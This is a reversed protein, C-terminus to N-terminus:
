LGAYKKLREQTNVTYARYSRYKKAAEDWSGAARPNKLEASKGKLAEQAKAQVALVLDGAKHKGSVSDQKLTATGKAGRWQKSLEAFKLRWEALRPTPIVATIPPNRIIVPKTVWFMKPTRMVVQIGAARLEARRPSGAAAVFLLKNLTTLTM